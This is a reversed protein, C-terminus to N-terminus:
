YLAPQQTIHFRLSRRVATQPVSDQKTVPQPSEDHVMKLRQKHWVPQTNKDITRTGRLIWAPFLVGQGLLDAQQISEM